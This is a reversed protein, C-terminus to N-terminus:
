CQPSFNSARRLMLSLSASSFHGLHPLFSGRRTKEENLQLVDELPDHAGVVLWPQPMEWQPLEGWLYKIGIRRAHRWLLKGFIEALSLM